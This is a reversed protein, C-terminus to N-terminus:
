KSKYINLGSGDYISRGLAENSRQRIFEQNQGNENSDTHNKMTQVQSGCSTFLALLLGSILIKM